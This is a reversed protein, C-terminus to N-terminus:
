GRVPRAALSFVHMVDRLVEMVMPTATRTM